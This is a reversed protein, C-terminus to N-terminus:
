PERPSAKASATVTSLLPRVVLIHRAPRWWASAVAAPAASSARWSAASSTLAGPTHSGSCTTAGARNKSLNASSPNVGEVSYRPATSRVAAVSRSPRDDHRRPCLRSNDQVHGPAKEKEKLKAAVQQDCRM